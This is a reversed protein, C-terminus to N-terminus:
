DKMNFQDLLEDPLKEGNLTPPAEQKPFDEGKAILGSKNETIKGGALGENVMRDIDMFRDKRGEYTEEQKNNIITRKDM